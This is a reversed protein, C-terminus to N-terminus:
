QEMTQLIFEYSLRAAEAKNKGTFGHGQGSMVVLEANAYVSEAHQSYSLDVIADKDGHLILVPGTYPAIHADVDYGYLGQSYIRGVTKGMIKYTEPVEAETAYRAKADDVICFAPYFLILGRIDEQRQAATIASVFGGQSEGLLFLNDKDTTDLTLIMDVVANLDDQETFVSMETMSGGSKSNNNGGYFDFSYVAFGSKALSMGVGTTFMQGSSGFGHSCIVTPLPGTEGVPLLLEGYLARGEMPIELVQKEVEYTKEGVSVPSPVFYRYNLYSVVILVAVIGCILWINMKRKKEKAKM